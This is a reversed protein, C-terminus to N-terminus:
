TFQVAIPAGAVYPAKTLIKISHAAPKKAVVLPIRGTLEKYGNCCFMVLYYKGPEKPTVKVTGLGKVASSHYSWSHSSQKGPVHGIKYIGIWDKAHTAGTFQVCALRPVRLFAHRCMCTRQNSSSPPPAPRCFEPHSVAVTIANGQVFPGKSTIQVTPGKVSKCKAGFQSLVALLDEM